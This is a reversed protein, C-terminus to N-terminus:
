HKLGEILSDLSEVHERLVNLVLDLADLKREQMASIAREPNMSFDAIVPHFFSFSSAVEHHPSAV